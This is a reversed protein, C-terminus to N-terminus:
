RILKSAHLLEISAPRLAVGRGSMVANARCDTKLFAVTDWGFAAEFAVGLYSINSLVVM